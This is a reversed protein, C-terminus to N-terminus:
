VSPNKIDPDIDFDQLNEDEDEYRVNYSFKHNETAAGPLRKAKFRIATSFGVDGPDKKKWSGDERYRLDGYLHSLDDRTKVASRLLSWYFPKNGVLSVTITTHEYIYIDLQSELGQKSMFSSWGAQDREKNLHKVSPARTLRYSFEPEGKDDLKYQLELHLTDKQNFGSPTDGNLEWNSNATAM